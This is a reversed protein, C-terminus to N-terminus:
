ISSDRVSGGGVIPTNVGTVKVIASTAADVFEGASFAMVYQPAEDLGKVKADEM